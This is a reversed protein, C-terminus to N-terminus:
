QMGQCIIAADELAGCALRSDPSRPCDLLTSESGSCDVSNLVIPVSADSFQSTTM